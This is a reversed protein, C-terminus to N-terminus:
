EQDKISEFKALDEKQDDPNTLEIQNNITETNNVKNSNNINNFSSSICEFIINM